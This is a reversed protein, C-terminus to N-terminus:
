QRYKLSQLNKVNLGIFWALFLLFTFKQIIPLETREFDVEYIYFNSAVLILGLIGMVGYNSHGSRFLLILVLVMAIAGLIAASRTVLDHNGTALFVTVIMSLIGTWRMLQPQIRGSKFLSPISYWFSIIGLCLLGLAIRSLTRGPNIEGNLAQYDLLDCLYNELWSFGPQAPHEYSGGPYYFTSLVFFLVFGILCINSLKIISRHQKGNM